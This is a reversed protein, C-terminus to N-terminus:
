EEDPDVFADDLSNELLEFLNSFVASVKGEASSDVGTLNFLTADLNSSRIIVCSTGVYRIFDAGFDILTGENDQLISTGMYSIAQMMDMANLEEELETKEDGTLKEAMAEIFKVSLYDQFGESVKDSAEQMVDSNFEGSKHSLDLLVDYNNDILASLYTTLADSYTLADLNSDIYDAKCILWVITYRLFDDVNLGSINKSFLADYASISTFSDVYVSAILEYAALYVKSHLVFRHYNADNFTGEDDTLKLVIQRIMPASSKVFVNPSDSDDRSVSRDGALLGTLLDPMDIDAYGSVLSLAELAEMGVTVLGLVDEETKDEGTGFDIVAQAMSDLVAVTAVDGRTPNEPINNEKIYSIAEGLSDKLAEKQEDSLIDSDIDDIADELSVRTSDIAEALKEATAGSPKAMSEKLADTKQRSDKISAIYDLIGAASKLDVTGDENIANDITDSAKSVDTLNASIGWVNNGMKGMLDGLQQYQDQSCATLALVMAIVLLGLLIKKM